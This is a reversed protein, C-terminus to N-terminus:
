KPFSKKKAKMSAFDKIVDEFNMGETLKREISLIALSTLRVQNMTSRLYSKILKLKSFSRECSAISVCMTLFIRLVISLNPLSERFGWKVMWQLLDLATIDKGGIVHNNEDSSKVHRRFRGVETKLEVGDLEDYIAVLADTRQGIFETRDPDMLSSFQTFGFRQNIIHM